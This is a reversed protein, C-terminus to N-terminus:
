RVTRRTAAQIPSRAVDVLTSGRVGRHGVAGPPCRGEAERLCSATVAEDLTARVALLDALGTLRLPRLVARHGAVAMAVGRDWARRDAAVLAGIGACCFFATGAHDVVLGARCRDVATALLAAFQAVNTMEVDGTVEVVSVTGLEMTRITTTSLAITCTDRVTASGQNRQVAVSSNSLGHREIQDSARWPSRRDFQNVAGSGPVRCGHRILSSTCLVRLLGGLAADLFAFLGLGPYLFLLRVVLFSGLARGAM